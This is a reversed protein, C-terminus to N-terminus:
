ALSSRSISIISPCFTRSPVKAQVAVFGRLTLKKRQTRWLCACQTNIDDVQYFGHSKQKENVLGNRTMSYCILLTHSTFYQLWEWNVDYYCRM